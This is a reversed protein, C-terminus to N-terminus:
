VKVVGADLNTNLFKEEPRVLKEMGPVSSPFRGQGGNENVEAMSANHPFFGFCHRLFKTM